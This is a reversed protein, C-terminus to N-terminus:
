NVRNWTQNRGLASIGIYGRVTLKKGDASIESKMKYSKGSKPDLITGGDYKGTSVAKLNRVITVGQLSKGKLAGACNTCAKAAQPDLVKVIAANFSGNAQQKFQVIAKPKGTEDDITQWQSNNLTDAFAGTSVLATTALILSLKKM